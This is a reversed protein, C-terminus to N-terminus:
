KGRNPLGGGGGRMGGGSGSNGRGLAITPGSMNGSRLSRRNRAFDSINRGAVKYSQKNGSKLADFARNVEKNRSSNSSLDIPKGESDLGKPKKPAAKKATAAKKAPTKKKATAM